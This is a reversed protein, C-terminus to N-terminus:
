LADRIAAVTCVACLLISVVIVWRGFTKHAQTERKHTELYCAAPVIHAFIMTLTPSVLSWLFPVITDSRALLQGVVLIAAISGYRVYPNMHLDCRSDEEISPLLHCEEDANALDHYKHPRNNRSGGSRTSSRTTWTEIDDQCDSMDSPCHGDLVFTEITDLLYDRCPILVLPSACFITLFSVAQLAPYSNILSAHNLFNLPIADSSGLRHLFQYGACGIATALLTAGLIGQRVVAGMLSVTPTSLEAQIYLVNYSAAFQLLLMNFGMFSDNVAEPRIDHTHGEYHPSITKFFLLMAFLAILSCVGIYMMLQLPHFTLGCVVAIPVWVLILPMNTDPLYLHSLTTLITYVSRMSQSVLLLLYVFLFASSVCHVRHGFSSRVVGGYTNAGTKRACMWFLYMTRDTTVALAIMLMITVAVGCREFAYPMGLSGNSGIFTLIIAAKSFRASGRRQESDFPPVMIEESASPADQSSISSLGM